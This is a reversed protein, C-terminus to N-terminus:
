YVCKFLNAWSTEQSNRTHPLLDLLLHFSRSGFCRRHLLSHGVKGLGDAQLVAVTDHIPSVAAPIKSSCTVHKYLKVDGPWGKIVNM